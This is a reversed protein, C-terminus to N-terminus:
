LFKDILKLHKDIVGRLAYVTQQAAQGSLRMQSEDAFLASVTKQLEEEDHVTYAAGNNVLIAALESFDEMHPGFLVPIGNIAPEIPNHGGNQTLSGGVFALNSRNYFFTLEGLSDVILVDGGATKNQSRLIATLGLAAAQQQIDAARKPNRPAIVLFLHTIEKKLSAFCRLLVTEEGPHTSGCTFIISNEPILRDLHTTDTSVPSISDLKLNGLTHLKTRPVGLISMNLKDQETQMCLASFAQFMPSFFFSFKQYNLFSRNSIRGNVLISPIGHRKIAFILNPWFDTEVLIFCDPKIIKLYNNVVPLIDLPSDIIGDALNAFFSDALNKGSRTAASVIIRCSPYQKRLGILLPKASTIEGVSLAHIWFTQPKPSLPIKESLGLGFRAGIRGWDKKRILLVIPLAPVIFPLLLLHLINYIIVM